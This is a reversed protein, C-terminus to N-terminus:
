LIYIVYIVYIHHMVEVLQPFNPTLLKIYQIRNSLKSEKTLKRHSSARLLVEKQFSSLTERPNFPIALCVNKIRAVYRKRVNNNNNNNNDSSQKNTSSSSSSSSTNNRDSSTVNSDFSLQPPAISDLPNTDNPPPRSNRNKQRLADVKSPSDWDMKSAMVKRKVAVRREKIVVFHQGTKESKFYIM